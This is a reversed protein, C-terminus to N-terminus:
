RPMIEGVRRAAGECRRGSGAALGVYNEALTRAAAESSVVYRLQSLQMHEDFQDAGFAHLMSTM